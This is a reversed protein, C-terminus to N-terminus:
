CERVEKKIINQGNADRKSSSKQVLIARLRIIGSKSLNIVVMQHLFPPTNVKTLM